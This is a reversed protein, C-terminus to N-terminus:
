DSDEVFDAPDINTLAYMKSCLASVADYKGQQYAKKTAWKQDQLLRWLEYCM